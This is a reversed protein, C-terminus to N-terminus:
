ARHAPQAPRRQAAVLQRDLREAAVQDVRGVPPDALALAAEAGVRHLHDVLPVGRHVHLVGFGVRDPADNV